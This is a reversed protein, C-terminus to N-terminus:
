IRYRRQIQRSSLEDPIWKMVTNRLRCLVPNELQAMQGLRYSDSVMRHVRAKRLKEYMRFADQPTNSGRVCSALFAADELAQCAGQGLNPTMAHAADGMFAVRGYALSEIPKRDAIDAHILPHSRAQKLIQPIPDHFRAFHALLGAANMARARDDGPAARTLAYWYVRGGKLPVVGFRGREGWTESFYSQKIDVSAIGRWCTYGAYRLPAPSALQRRLASHIGDCALIANGEHESGDELALIPENELATASYKVAVAKQGFYMAESPLAEMLLRYLDARALAVSPGLEGGHMRSLVEGRDSLIMMESCALGLELAQEKLTPHLRRLAELANPALIIGAGAPRAEPFREFLAFPLGCSQLGIAASLGSIGGGAILWPKTM